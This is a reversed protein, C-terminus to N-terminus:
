GFKGVMTEKSSVGHRADREDTEAIHAGAHGGIEYLCTM